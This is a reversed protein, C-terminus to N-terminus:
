DLGAFADPLGGGKEKGVKEAAEARRKELVREADIRPRQFRDMPALLNLEDVELNHSAVRKRWAAEAAAVAADAAPNEDRGRVRLKQAAALESDLEAFLRPRREDITNIMEIWAPAEDEEEEDNDPPDARPEASALPDPQQPAAAAGGGQRKKKYALAAQMAARARQEADEPSEAARESGLSTPMRVGPLAGPGGGDEAASRTPAVALTARLSEALQALELVALPGSGM